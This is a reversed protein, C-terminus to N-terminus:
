RRSGVARMRLSRTLQLASVAPSGFRARRHERDLTYLARAAEAHSWLLPINGLAADVDWEEPQLPPLQACLDDARAQAAELDGIMALATVAWWAAPLFTHERGAFGDDVPPYRRLFSGEELAAVLSRVHRRLRPDRRDWFRGTAALFMAADPTAEAQDFCQPLLGAADDWAAEVRSRAATRADAWTPHRRWPRRRSMLRLACDLGHWRALEETVLCVPERLEWIGSSPGPPTDALLAALQEVLARRRRTLRGGGFVYISVAEIVSAVSDLQRQETAANGIRVPRSSAWGAVGVIEREPPVPGGDARTLPTLHTGTRDLLEAVFDLYHGAAGLHGLMTATSVALASDRLWTYRYDFQRGGGPAEPLSTTPAAVPAGSRPDTLARLVRLADTARSPHRRPLSIRDMAQRDRREACQLMDVMEDVEFSREGTSIAIGTWRNPEAVLPVTPCSVVMRGDRSRAPGDPSWRPEVDFGGLTLELRMAVSEAESRVLRILATQDGATVLGDWLLVRHGSVRVTTRSTPAAPCAEWSAM